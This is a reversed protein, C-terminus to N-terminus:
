VAQLMTWYLAYWRFHHGYALSSCSYASSHQNSCQQKWSDPYTSSSGSTMLKSKHGYRCQQRDSTITNTSSVVGKRRLVHWPRSSPSYWRCFWTYIDSINAEESMLIRFRDHIARVELWNCSALSWAQNAPAGVGAEFGVRCRLRCHFM